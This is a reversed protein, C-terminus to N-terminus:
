HHISDVNMIIIIDCQPYVMFICAMVRLPSPHVDVQGLGHLAFCVHLVCHVSATRVKWNSGINYQTRYETPVVDDSELAPRHVALTDLLGGLWTSLPPAQGDVNAFVLGLATEIRVPLLGM